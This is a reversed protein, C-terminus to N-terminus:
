RSRLPRRANACHSSASRLMVAGCALGIVLHTARWGYLAIADSCSRRGCRAPSIIARGLVVDDGCGRRRVFWNSIDAMLPGLSVSSGFGIVAHALAFVSLSSASPAALIAWASCQGGRSTVPGLIGAIDLLRGMRVGGFAFGLWRWRSRCRPKRGRCASNRKCPLSRWWWRGCGSGASPPSWCRHPLGSGLRARTPYRRGQRIQGSRLEM